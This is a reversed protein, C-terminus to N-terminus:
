SFLARKGVVTTGVEPITSSNLLEAFMSDHLNSSVEFAILGDEGHGSLWM